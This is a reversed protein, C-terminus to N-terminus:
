HPFSRSHAVADPAGLLYNRCDTSHQGDQDYRPCREKQPFGEEGATVRPVATAVYSKAPHYHKDDPNSAQYHNVYKPWCAGCALAGVLRALARAPHCLFRISLSGAELETRKVLARDM